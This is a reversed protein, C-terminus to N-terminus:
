YRKKQKAMKAVADAPKEFAWEEVLWVMTAKIDPKRGAQGGKQMAMCFDQAGYIIAWMIDPVDCGMGAADTCFLWRVKGTRFWEMVKNKYEESFVATFAYVCKRLHPPLLARLLDCARRTARRSSFYFIGKPLDEPSTPSDLIFSFLSAFSQLSYEMPRVWFALNPRD